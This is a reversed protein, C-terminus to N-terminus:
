AIRQDIVSSDYVPVGVFTISSVESTITRALSATGLRSAGYIDVSTQTLHDTLTTGSNMSRTYHAM